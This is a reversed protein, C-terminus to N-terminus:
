NFCHDCQQSACRGKGEIRKANYGMYGEGDPFGQGATPSTAPEHWSSEDGDRRASTTELAVSDSGDLPKTLAVAGLKDLWAM